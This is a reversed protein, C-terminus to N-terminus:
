TMLPRARPKSLNGPPTPEREEECLHVCVHMACLLPMCTYPCTHVCSCMCVCPVHARESCVRICVCTCLGSQGALLSLGLRLEGGSRVRQDRTVKLRVYILQLTGSTPSAHRHPCSLLCWMLFPPCLSLSLPSPLRLRLVRSPAGGRGTGAPCRRGGGAM